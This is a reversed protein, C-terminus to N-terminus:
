DRLEEIIPEFTDEFTQGGNKAFISFKESKHWYHQVDKVDIGAAKCQEFLEPLHGRERWAYVIDLEEPSLRIRKNPM